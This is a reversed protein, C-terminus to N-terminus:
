KKLSGEYCKVVIHDTEKNEELFQKRCNIYNYAHLLAFKVQFVAHDDNYVNM